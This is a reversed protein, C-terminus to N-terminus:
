ANTPHVSRGSKYVKSPTVGHWRTFWDNGNPQRRVDELEETAESLKLALAPAADQGLNELRDIRRQHPRNGEEFRRGFRGGLNAL